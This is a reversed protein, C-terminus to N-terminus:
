ARRCPMQLLRWSGLDQGPLRDDANGACEGASCRRQDARRHSLEAGARGRRDGHQPAAIQTIWNAVPLRAAATNQLGYLWSGQYSIGRLIAYAQVVPYDDGDGGWTAPDSFRHTGNGGVTSDKSPDYLPIGSLEFKFTPFGNWLNEDVLAHIVAYCMGKGVHASTYPREISSANIMAGDAATQTGDYYKVFLHATPSSEGDHLKIYEPVQYGLSGSSFNTYLADGLSLTVKSGNVWLGIFM